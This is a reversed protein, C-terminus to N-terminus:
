TEKGFDFEYESENIRNKAIDFYEKNLEIGIFHRKLKKCAVGTTGSGMYCDLITENELSSNIILNEVINLPKITPHGYKRKDKMNTQSIYYTRKTDFSGYVKVGKERFFLCYETDTLYKNGCAPIPNTKHWTLLNWNCKKNEAFYKILHLIQKQSCFIYCNIKKMVRCLEDLVDDSFGKKMGDIEKMVYREGSYTYMKRGITKATYEDSKKGFFGAGDTELIYPPDTVVLDISNSPIKRLTELCDANLLNM